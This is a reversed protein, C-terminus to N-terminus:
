AIGLETALRQAHGTAGVESFLRHAQRLHRERAKEDGCLRALAAREVPVQPAASRAGTADYLAAARDLEDGIRERLGADGRALLARAIALHAAGEMTLTKRRRGLVVGEEATALAADLDGQEIRTEALWALTLPEFLRGVDHERMLALSRELAAEGDAWNEHLLHARGVGQLGMVIALFSGRAEALELGERAAELAGSPDGAWDAITAHFCLAACLVPLDGIRRMLSIAEDLDRRAEPIRGMLGGTMARGMLMTGLPNFVLQDSGRRVDDGALEIGQELLALGEALRGLSFHVMPVSGLVALRLAVDGVEESLRLAEEAKQLGEDPRGRLHQARAYSGLLLVLSRKDGGRRALERGEELIAAIEQEGLGMREGQILAHICATLRLGTAGESDDAHLLARVSRWHRLSEPPDLLGAWGAARAHCRAAELADGAREWHHALLAAREDLKNADLEALARAVAGHMRARAEGLQSGYAVDQTLPHRFGYEVDPYLGREVLLEAATLAQLAERLEAEPLGAVTQLLREPVEKGIVAATQLLRKEREPLRDIRATLVAQVSSPLVLEAVPRALRYGGREGQLAAADALSRVLEEVFFPNGAAREAIREPLGALSPDDGLLSGVLKQMAEADLPVLPLQQYVPKGMWDARYEPRFNM